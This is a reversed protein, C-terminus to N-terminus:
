VEVTSVLGRSYGHPVQGEMVGEEDNDIDILQLADLAGASAGAYSRHAPDQVACAVM